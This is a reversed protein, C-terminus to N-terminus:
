LYQETEKAASLCRVPQVRQLARAAHHAASDRRAGRGAAHGPDSGTTLARLEPTFIVEERRRDGFYFLFGRPVSRGTMEELCLAQACLQAHDNSWRGRQGQKYEIPTLTGDEAEEVIDCIGSVGLTHSYVQVSRRALVGPATTEYGQTHVREHHAVGRAVHANEIMEGEVHMYWFRRPCYAYQNIYSLPLLDTNM